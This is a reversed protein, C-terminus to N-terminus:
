GAYRVRLRWLFTALLIVAILGLTFPDSDSGGDDADIIHAIEHGGAAATAGGLAALIADDRWALAFLLAAGIGIQFAGVDHVFHNNYPPFHGIEDFFSQADLMAWLGLALTFAGFAGVVITSVLDSRSSSTPSRM